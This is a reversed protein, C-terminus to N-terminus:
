VAGLDRPPLGEMLSTIVCEHTDERSGRLHSGNGGAFEAASSTQAEGPCIAGLCAPFCPRLQVIVNTNENVLPLLCGYGDLEPTAEM